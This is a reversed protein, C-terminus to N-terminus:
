SSSTVSRARRRRCVLAGIVLSLLGSFLSPRAGADCCGDSSPKKVPADSPYTGCTPGKAGFQRKLDTGCNPCDWLAVDCTDHQVTGPECQVADAMEVFRWVKEWTAGDDHSRALAMFDPEWNAGCGLLAGDGGVAICALEPVGTMQAFTAGGDVSQYSPGGMVSTSTRIQTAVYVRGGRLVVDHVSAQTQLVETWTVGGDSSRYLRDGAPPAAAESAMYVVDPNAPDVARVRLVPTTAYMVDALPSPTWDMGGNDSRYFYATPTGAVQYGTIYVREPDSPAVRVSKWWKEASQMGRSVFTAGSDTSVLVDNVGATEATGIWIEGTPGITLADIWKNETASATSFTCGGDRSIRLGEFTTAFLTGDALVGYIPDWTGGYGINQECIWHFTCGGDKSIALGFTTALYVSQPDGPRTYVGITRPNRGNASASSTALTLALVLLWRM